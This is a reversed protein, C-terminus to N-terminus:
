KKLEELAGQKKLTQVALESMKAQLKRAEENLAQREEVLKAIEAEVVKIREKQEM